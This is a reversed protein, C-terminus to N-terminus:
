YRIVVNKENGYLFYIEYTKIRFTILVVQKIICYIWQKRM